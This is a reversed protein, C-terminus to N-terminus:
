VGFRALKLSTLKWVQKVYWLIHIFRLVNQYVILILNMECLKADLRLRVRGRQHNLNERYDVLLFQAM